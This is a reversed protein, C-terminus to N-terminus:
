YLVKPLRRHGIYQTKYCINLNLFTIVINKIVQVCPSTIL